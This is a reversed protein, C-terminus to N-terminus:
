SKSYTLGSQQGKVLDKLEELRPDNDLFGRFANLQSEPGSSTMLVELKRLDPVTDQLANLTTLDQASLLRKMQDLAEATNQLADCTVRRSNSSTSMWIAGNIANM